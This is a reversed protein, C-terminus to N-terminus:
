NYDVLEEKIKGFMTIKYSKIKSTNKPLLQDEFEKIFELSRPHINEKNNKMYFSVSLGFVIFKNYFKSFM